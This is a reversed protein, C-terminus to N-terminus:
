NNDSNYDIFDIDPYYDEDDNFKQEENKCLPCFIINKRTYMNSLM